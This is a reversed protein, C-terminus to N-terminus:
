SFLNFIMKCGIILILIATLQKIKQRNLIPRFHYNGLYTGLLVVLPLFLFRHSIDPFYNSSFSNSLLGLLALCSNLFIYLSTFLPVNWPKSNKNLYLLPSLFIGGGIGILGSFFAISASIVGLASQPINLRSRNWLKELLLALGSLLLFVAGLIRFGSEQLIVKGGLFAFPLALFLFWFLPKMEEILGKRMKLLNVSVVGINCVLALLKIQSVPLPTLSLIALYSSGGGFGVTSYVLSIFLFFLHLM